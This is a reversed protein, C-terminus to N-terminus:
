YKLHKVLLIGDPAPTNVSHYSVRHLVCHSTIRPETFKYKINLKHSLKWSSCITVFTQWHVRIKHTPTHHIYHLLSGCRLADSCFFLRFLWRASFRKLAHLPVTPRRLEATNLHSAYSKNILGFSPPLHTLLHLCALFIRSCHTRPRYSRVYVVTIHLMWKTSMEEM